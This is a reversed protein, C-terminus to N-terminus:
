EYSAPIIKNQPSALLVTERTLSVRDLNDHKLFDLMIIDNSFNTQEAIPLICYGSHKVRQSFM